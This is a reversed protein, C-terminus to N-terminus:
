DKDGYKFEEIIEDYYDCYVPLESKHRNYLNASLVDVGDKITYEGLGHTMYVHKSGDILGIRYEKEHKEWNKYFAERYENRLKELHPGEAAADDKGKYYADLTLKKIEDNYKLRMVIFVVFGGIFYPLFELAIYLSERM